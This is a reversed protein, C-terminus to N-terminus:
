KNKPKKEPPLETEGPRLLSRLRLAEQYKPTRHDQLVFAQESGCNACCGNARKHTDCYPCTSNWLGIPKPSRCHRCIDRFDYAYKSGCYVCTHDSM